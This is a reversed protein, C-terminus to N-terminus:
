YWVWVNEGLLKIFVPVLEPDFQSGKCKKIEAIADEHSMAKRYPRDSTMADYADAIALIRCELPINGGKLKLPYGTGNWWEHHKLIFEAIPSLDPASMAIRHGIESHRQMESAEESTLPGRKFLISDPIGVKGIDHFQALLRLDTIRSEPMSIARALGTVLDQLRDAHGETIFDRAELAKKLTQVIASRGSQSCHLKERYMNNDAEKFIENMSIDPDTKVAFGISISLPLEPNTSNYIEIAERIRGCSQAVSDEGGDSFLVAFEDGGIRAVMDSGRFSSKIVGAAAILLSDGKDHGLTDNVLKLGDVDCVVISVPYKRGVEARHMEQEFYARNYLGTLSDHLSLHKLQEEAQRRVTVDRAVGEIAMLNNEEDYFAVNRHEAWFVMGNKHVWRVVQPCGDHPLNKFFDVRDKNDDPHAIKTTIEPDAYFEEPTYGSIDIVSPSVYEFGPSPLYRYRYIVDQANEALRRFREEDERLKKQTQELNALMNNIAAALRSLEDKGTVQVRASLDGGTGIGVMSDNLQVLRSLVMKRLLMMIAALGIIGTFLLSFVLYRVSTQGQKYVDRPTDIRLLLAPDGYIDNILAYGAITDADLAQIYETNVDDLNDMAVAMDPSLQPDNFPLLMISLQTKEALQEVEQPLLFRGMIMAGRIPGENNSTVIPRSAILLPGEPLLVVGTIISTPYPHNLIPSNEFFLELLSGPVALPGNDNNIDIGKSFVLQSSSNIYIIYNLQLGTFTTDVLNTEIYGDNVDEIFDYTDDWASWDATINDLNCLIDTFGHLAREVNVRTYREELGAFSSTLIVRSATYLISILGFFVLVVILLM